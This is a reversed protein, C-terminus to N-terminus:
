ADLVEESKPEPGGTGELLFQLFAHGFESTQLLYGAPTGDIEILGRQALRDAVREIVDREQNLVEAVRNTTERGEFQLSRPEGLRQQESTEHIRWLVDVHLTSFEAILTVFEERLDGPTSSWPGSRAAAHALLARKQELASEDAARHLKAVAALFQPDTVDIKAGQSELAAVRAATMAAWDEDRARQTQRMREAITAAALTGAFPVSEIVALGLATGWGAARSEEPVPNDITM